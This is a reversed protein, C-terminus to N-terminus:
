AHTSEKWIPTVLSRKWEATAHTHRRSHTKLASRKRRPPIPPLKKLLADANQWASGCDGRWHQAATILSSWPRSHHWRGIRTMQCFSSRIRRIPLHFPTRCGVLMTTSPQVETTLATAVAMPLLRRCPQVAMRRRHQQRTHMGHCIATPTTSLHHRQSCRGHRRRRRRRRRCELM